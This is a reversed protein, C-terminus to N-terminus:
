NVKSILLEINYEVVTEKYETVSLQKDLVLSNDKTKVHIIESNGETLNEIKVGLISIDLANKIKEKIENLNIVKKTLEKNILKGIVTKYLDQTHLDISVTPDVYLRVTPSVRYEVTSNNGNVNLTLPSTSRPARYYISTRELLNRNMSPLQTFLINEFNELIFTRLNDNISGSAVMFEYELMLMDIYRLIGPIADIIPNGNIDLIPDGKRHLLVKQGTNDLVFEGAKHLIKFEMKNPATKRWIVNGDIDTEYVDREYKKYVDEEYTKYKRNTYTNYLKNWLYKIEKGFEVDVTDQSLVTIFDEGSDINERLYNTPDYNDRDVIYSYITMQTALNTLKSSTLSNGNTILIRNDRNIMEDVHIEGVFAEASANYELHFHVLDNNFLNLSVQLRKKTIDIKNYGDDGSTKIVLRYGDKIRQITYKEVYVNVNVLNQNKARIRLNEIKPNELHYVKCETTADNKSVVYTFINFFYKNSKMHEIKQLISMDNLTKTEFPSLIKMIGNQELFVSNAKIIFNDDKVLDPYASQYEVLSVMVTNNFTDPMAKILNSNFNDLDKSAIFLRNTIVDEVLSINYNQNNGVKEIQYNTVPVNIPGLKHNIVSDRLDETSMGNTGGEIVSESHFAFRINPATSAQAHNSDGLTYTYRDRTYHNLPLFTNGKTEYVVITVTGSILGNTIYISPINFKVENDMVKIYCKPKFPDLYSDNFTQEIKVPQNGTASSSYFVEAHYFKDTLSHTYNFGISKNVPQKIVNKSVQKVPIKFRLFPINNSSHVIKSEIVSINNYAIDNDNPISEVYHQETGDYVRIVINNLLTLPYNAINITTGIPLMTERYNANAPKYASNKMDLIHTEVILETESPTSFLGQTEKDTVHYLLEEKTTALYPFQRRLNAQTKNVASNATTVAVEVLNLFPNNASGIEYHETEMVELIKKQALAPNYILNDLDNQSLAM